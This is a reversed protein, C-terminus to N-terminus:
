QARVLVDDIFIGPYSNAGCDVSDFNFEIKVKKGHLASIDLSHSQWTSNHPTVQKSVKNGPNATEFVTVFTRDFSTSPEVSPNAQFTLFLKKGAPPATALFEASVATGKVPTWFSPCSYNAGNNFNLSCDSSSFGPPNPTADVAWVVPVSPNNKVWVDQSCVVGDGFAPIPVAQLLAADVFWGKYANGVGDVSDFRFRLRFKTGVLPSLDLWEYKWGKKGNQDLEYSAQNASFALNSAEVYRKDFSASPETETWSRYLVSVPTGAPVATLDLVPSLAWGWVTGGAGPSYDVGDNFNLSADGEFKGPDAATADIAWGVGGIPASMQWGNPNASSFPETYAAAGTVKVIPGAYVNVDEVFWGVGTNYAADVSDFRFRVQFKKGKLAAVDFAQIVWKGRDLSNLLKQEFVITNFGDTSVQVYMLDAVDLNEVPDVGNYSHFTLTMAGTVTTADFLFTSVANGSTTGPYATGNNYNLSCTGTLKGPAAPTADAAWGVGGITPSFAWLSQPCTVEDYFSVPKLPCAGGLIFVCKGTTPDCSDNTCPNYDDCVTAVGPVCAGSACLDGTTCLSGDDCPAANNKYYCLGTGKDCYDDTCVNKDDCNIAPGAVCVGGSCLDKLTCKDGDDCPLTNNKYVCGTAPDCGDNTCVNKDDCNLAPGGVCAGASCTDATTCKNGDDCPLTNPTNVCGKLPDCSDNTCLNKDDCNPAPGGVCTGGSCKDGTTCKSPDECALANPTYVCGKTPDCSDDTCPNKDDCVLAPGGVCAGAACTDMTTCKNGDDCPLTNPTNVCGKLPDCSDNTCPNKDDCNPPISGVCVKNSCVDVTTCKNGDDCPATNNLYYCGIGLACKDDTCVNGDDCQIGVGSCKGATCKDGTTCENGDDCVTGDKVPLYVCGKVPDCSDTTCVNKDDCVVKSGPVCVGNACTDGTTCKSGDECANSNNIYVCGVAPVCTESTCVNKDDCNVDQGVCKGTTCIDNATCKSGDDCPKTNNVYVCGTKPDCSDDTCVNADDCKLPVTGVCKGLSCADVTTCKNGDDCPLTNNVYVCGVAPKCTDNTCLNKDDCVLAPGGVCKGASCQDATTCKNGDDCPLTNNANVCGLLPDCSDTTCINGDDCALAPGGVCKGQACIDATTCANGDDCPSKNYSHVCGLDPVCKDDTCPNEDDCDLLPGGVCSSDVCKDGTTCKSGDECSGEFSKYVCGKEAECSDVTCANGDNCDPAPGGACQGSACTDATTCLSGDDCPLTNNKYSCGKVPDCLDDTCLNGDSCDLVGVGKCVGAGCTDGTTCVSGDNCPNTNPEFFCGVEANECKDDTCPNGDNCEVGVGTCVGAKCVDNNTCKNGDDCSKGESTPAHVCGVKPDCSDATCPNLDDCNPKDKGPVCVNNQCIDGVTCPNEDSCPNMNPIVVCGVAPVCVESTCVNKDDCSLPAGAQCAGNGCADGETCKNGDDCPVTNNVNLCGLLKDCSDDTCKNGDDCKPAPGGVCAGAACTDATTCANADDCPLTNPQNLCGAAPECSDSTCPNKDDCNPAVGGVCIGEVCTDNLTCKSTDDCALSNNVHVCGLIKDCSDDTCPNGDDCEPAPGGKCAGGKCTDKTTCADGDDCQSENNLNQCGALPDCSDDTCPNGDDCEVPEGSQCQGDLCADGDSCKDGDDCPETNNAYQCGAVTDCSDDTCPNVDDCNASGGSVCGGDACADGVTCANEDDCPASNNQNVCGGLPDCTDDTCLNSDDCDLAGNGECEGNFCTDDLTCVDGDDCALANNATFCGTQTNCLDDTCPNGDDCTVPTGKCAGDVCTDMETCADADDCEGDAPTHSCGEGPVCSDATCPNGDDCGLDGTGACEGEKCESLVTCIDGDDCATGDEQATMVCEGTEPVCENKTCATDDATDCVVVTTPDTVCLKNKCLVLGNCADGDDFGACEEDKTCTCEAGLTGTCVGEVCKDDESCQNGDDCTGEIPTFSCGSKPNCEDETCPNGDNCSLMESGVCQSAICVDGKTCQSQDDCATGEPAAVEGCEGTAPNCVNKVCGTADTQECVVVSGDKVVCVGGVCDLTGNCLNGDEKLECDAITECLCVNGGGVCSGAACADGETCANGDDCVATNDAFVCGNAPDCSDDTCLNGDDCVAPVGECTGAKCVAQEVCADGPDCAVGDPLKKAVCTGSPVDCYVDLCPGEGVEDVLAACDGDEKCIFVVVEAPIEPEIEPM